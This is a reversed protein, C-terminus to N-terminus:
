LRCRIRLRGTRGLSPRSMCIGSCVSRTGWNRATRACSGVTCHSPLCSRWQRPGASRKQPGLKPPSPSFGHHRGCQSHSSIRSPISITHCLKPTLFQFPFALHSTLPPILLFHAQPPSQIAWLSGSIARTPIHRFRCIIRINRDSSPLKFILRRRPAATKPRGLNKWGLVM